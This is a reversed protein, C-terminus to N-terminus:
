RGFAAELKRAGNWPEFDVGDSGISEYMVDDPDSHDVTRRYIREGDDSLAYAIEVIQGQDEPAVHWTDADAPARRTTCIM